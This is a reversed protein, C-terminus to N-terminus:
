QLLTRIAGPPVDGSAGPHHQFEPALDAAANTVPLGECSACRADFPAPLLVGSPLRRM